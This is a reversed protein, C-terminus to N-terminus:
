IAFYIILEVLCLPITTLIAKTLGFKHYHMVGHILIKLSWLWIFWHLLNIIWYEMGIIGDLKDSLGLYLAIPLKLVNPVISYAVVVRLSIVSGSGKLYKGLQYIIYTILYAGILLVVVAGLTVSLFAFFVIEKQSWLDTNQFINRYFSEIGLLSGIILFLYISKKSLEDEYKRDLIDFAHATKFLIEFIM